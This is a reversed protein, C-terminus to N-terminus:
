WLYNVGLVWKSRDYDYNNLNSHNDSYDLTSNLQLKKSLLWQWDVSVSALLDSRIAKPFRPDLEEYDSDQALFRLQLVHRNLPRYQAALQLTIFKKGYINNGSSDGGLANDQGVMINGQVTTSVASLDQWLGLALVTQNLDRQHNDAQKVGSIYRANNPFRVGSLQASASLQRSTGLPVSWETGLSLLKRSEEGDVWLSQFSVPFRFQNQSLQYSGGGGMNLIFTDFNSTSSNVRSMMGANAFYGFRKSMPIGVSSSVGLENFVDSQKKTEDSPFLTVLFPGLVADFSTNSASNINSDYGSQWSAQRRWQTGQQKLKVDIAALFIAVRQKVEDPPAISLVAEFERRAAKLDGMVYFSRALELQVRPNNPHLMLIRDFAMSAYQPHGSELAAIGYYFDFEVEGAWNNEHASAAEFALQPQGQELLARMEAIPSSLVLLAILSAVINPM